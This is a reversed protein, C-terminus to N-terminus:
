ASSQGAAGELAIPEILDPGENKSSNVRTSVPFYRLTGVSAPRLLALQRDLLAPDPDLWLDFDSHDLVVPMRDHIHAIDSSPDATVIAFSEVPERGATEAVGEKPKWTEWIAALTIPKDDQRVFRWPQKAGKEGTWEYYGCAVALAHRKRVADKYSALTTITEARANVMMPLKKPDKAWFPILGWRMMSARRAGDADRRIVLSSQTPAINARADLNMPVNSLDYLDHLERWSLRNSFRGCM